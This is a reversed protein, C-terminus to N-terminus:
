GGKKRLWAELIQRAVEKQQHPEKGEARRQVCVMRLRTLLSVPLRVGWAEEKEDVPQSALQRATQRAKQSRNAATDSQFDEEEPTLNREETIIDTATKRKTKKRSAM